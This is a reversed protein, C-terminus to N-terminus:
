AVVSFTIYRTFPPTSSDRLATIATFRSGNFSGTLYGFRLAPWTQVEFALGMNCLSNGSISTDNIFYPPTGGSITSALCISYTGSNYLFSQSTPVGSMEIFATRTSNVNSVIFSDLAAITQGPWVYAGAVVFNNFYLLSTNPIAFTTTLTSYRFTGTSATYQEYFTLNNNSISGANLQNTSILGSNCLTGTNSFGSTLTVGLTTTGITGTIGGTATLAGNFFSTGVNSLM